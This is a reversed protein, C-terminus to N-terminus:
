SRRRPKAGPWCRTSASCSGPLDRAIERGVAAATEILFALSVRKANFGAIQIRTVTTM